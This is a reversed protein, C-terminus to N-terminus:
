QRGHQGGTDLGTADSKPPEVYYIGAAAPQGHEIPSLYKGRAAEPKDVEVEMPHATAWPDQRVGTVQWSVRVNPKDTRISFRNGSVEETVIAQAFEDLVTLQYCFERNLAEFYGPLEVTANGDVDTAINGNYINLRKDSEAFSHEIARTAAQGPRPDDILFGGGAKYLYGSVNVGGNFQGALGGATNDGLVAAGDPPPVVVPWNFTPGPVNSRGAVGFGGGSMNEGYVGSAARSRSVGQVGNLQASDGLVGNGDGTSVGFVGLPAEGKVGTGALSTGHVGIQPLDTDANAEGKV